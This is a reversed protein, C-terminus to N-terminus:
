TPGSLEKPCLKSTLRNRRSLNSVTSIGIIICQRSIRLHQLLNPRSTRRLCHKLMLTIRTHCLSLQLLADHAVMNLQYLPISLSVCDDNFARSTFAEKVAVINPHVIQQWAEIPAFAVQQTLRFNEIRRLTHAIGDSTRTARYVISHWNGFKKRDAGSPELPVLTHYGQLEEPLGLDVPNVTRIAESREQLQQRLEMSTPIFHTSMPNRVLETPMTPTYLLYNLPQRLFVPAAAYYSAEM